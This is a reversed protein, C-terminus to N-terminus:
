KFSVRPDVLAVLVDSIVNGLLMLFAGLTLTGMVVTYDRELVAHFSLLGFGDIDFIKEILLSGAVLLTINQGFTTAIPIISNRFAHRFVATRYPVGKAAATRVYDAALSDMLNNKMLMTLFAFSGVMYCILPLVSHHILDKTKGWFSLTHFDESVFDMIPFWGLRSGLYVVMLAGLVYGPIAYGIFVLISTATDLVTRHKIAKLVGLPICIVYTLIMTIVGYYISIPFRAMMLDWVPENYKTSEGLYGQLVGAFSSQYLVARPAFLEPEEMGRNLRRWKEAVAESSEIRLKWEELAEPDGATLTLVGERTAKAKVNTGPIALEVETAEGEFDAQVKHLDRPLVGLWIFYARLAPQDYGYYSALAEKAADDIGSGGDERSSKVSEGGQGMTGRMLATELPGGPAFRTILFVLLTLGFLTIPVLLLRRIFYDRM